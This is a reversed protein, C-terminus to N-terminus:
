QLQGGVGSLLFFEVDRRKVPRAILMEKLSEPGVFKIQNLHGSPLSLDNSNVLNCNSILVREFSIERHKNEYDVGCCTILNNVMNKGDTVSCNAQMCQILAGKKEKNDIAVVSVSRENGRPTAYVKSYGHANWLCACFAEFYDPNMGNLDNPGVDDDGFANGSGMGELDGFDTPSLDGSGNLMDTSLGRKWELLKDLKADFSLFDHATVVPYYVFVDKKQGIRYARDTAQDEKAPNWPRTFHVVHNAAQINVGFGVALPSLIIVGFGDQQQFKRIRKQRSNASQAKASTDGNVIDVSIDFRETIARQLTRQLDRFECFVIVKDGSKQIDKLKRLFWAMKPSHKEVEAITEQHTAQQDIPKPDSSLKRLYQLLGLPNHLGSVAPGAPRARFEKIAHAYLARQRDSIPLNRCEDDIIKAPLDRAVDSKTRRMIQPAIISRLEDVRKKEEDNEAEIPRRYRKSFSNLAGLLGPQAFDFLCWLDTLTNEVPTGTCAIKLRANQKKAARTVMANPNKIKQAEDCIMGSWRQAALSFELDRLTEYTTLVIKAQGLWDRCLLRSIGTAILEADIAERPLRKAALTPGYLSLVEMSEAVFFKDIEEQWNELLSVPAVVLFPDVHPNEELCTAIMSLLQITKGLGMDDALLAGCCNDPSNVWLHQLWLLGSLQHKKLQVDIKLSRPLRPKTGQPTDPLSGQKAAYDIKEVNPKVVLGIKETKVEKMETPELAFTGDAVDHDITNLITAIREAESIQLPQPCGPFELTERGEEKAKRLEEQFVTLMGEDLSLAIPQEEGEPTYLIGLIINDPLWQDDISKRAIFPSYYPKEVGFGLIRDSYITLDLIEVAKVEIVRQWEVMASKLIALQDPTDGLIELDYGEWVCCQAGNKIKSELKTIFKQLKVKDAFCLEESQIEGQLSEEVLLGVHVPVGEENKYIKAVFRTFSIGAQERAQEFADPDIVKSADPGLAAFPNRVFAEARRGAVRRGPMRKIERLVTQAEPPLIIHILGQGEAIQYQPQVEAFRDFTDLWQDPAGDFGPIVEVMKSEGFQAKRLEINLGEPTLVITKQLFDSLDADALIAAKRIKAWALKNNHQNRCHAERKYFEAVTTVVEWAAQTLLISSQGHILQAGNRTVNGQVPRGQSDIWGTVIVSFDQDSLAGRSSLVPRWPEINPLGLLSISQQYDRSSQLEYFSAWPLLLTPEQMHAFGEEELQNLFSVLESQGGFSLPSTLWNESREPSPSFVVGASNLLPILQTKQGQPPTATKKGNATFLPWKM